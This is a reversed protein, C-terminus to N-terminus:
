KMETIERDFENLSLRALHHQCPHWPHHWLDHVHFANLILVHNLHNHQNEQYVEHDNQFVDNGDVELSNDIISNDKKVLYILNHGIEYYNTKTESKSQSM